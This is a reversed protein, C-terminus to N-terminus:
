QKFYENCAINELPFFINRWKPPNEPDIGYITTVMYWSQNLREDVSVSSHFKKLAKNEKHTSIKLVSKDLNYM